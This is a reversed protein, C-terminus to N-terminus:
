FLWFTIELCILPLHSPRAASLAPAGTKLSAEANICISMHELAIWEQCWNSWATIIYIRDDSQSSYNLYSHNVGEPAESIFGPAWEHTAPQTHNLDAIKHLVCGSFLQGLAASAASSRVVKAQCGLPQRSIFGPEWPSNPSSPNWFLGARWGSLPWKLKSGLNKLKPFLCPLWKAQLCFWTPWYHQCHASLGLSGQWSM